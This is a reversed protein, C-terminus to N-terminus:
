LRKGEWIMSNIFAWAKFITESIQGTEHIEWEVLYKHAFIAPLIPTKYTKVSTLSQIIQRLSPLILRDVTIIGNKMKKKKKSGEITHAQLRVCHQFHLVTGTCKSGTCKSTWILPNDLVLDRTIIRIHFDTWIYFIKKKLVTLTRVALQLSPLELLPVSGSQNGSASVTM